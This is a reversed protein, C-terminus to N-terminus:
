PSIAGFVLQDGEQAFTTAFVSQGDKQLQYPFFVDASYGDVHDLSVQIADTKVSSGPSKIRVDFVIAAARCEGIAARKRLDALLADIITKSKPRDTTGKSGIYVIDYDRTLCAAYPYFEGHERLMRRALPLIENMLREVEKKSNGQQSENM